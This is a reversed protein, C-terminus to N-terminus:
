FHESDNFSYPFHVKGESGNAYVAIDGPSFEARFRPDNYRHVQDPKGFVKIARLYEDGKFGVFHLSTEQPTPMYAFKEPLTRVFSSSAQWTWKFYRLCFYIGFFNGSHFLGLITQGDKPARWFDYVPLSEPKM